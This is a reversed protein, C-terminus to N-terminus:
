RSEAAQPASGCAVPLKEPLAAVARPDTAMPQAALWASVAEIDGASLRGAIRAMCDPAAARRLGTQWAGLQSNLYDRPLGLLGPIAPQLGTLARGHCRVCAPIDRAADGREVLARGADLVRTPATAPVPPPHPLDLAAFHGAIEHLYADSLHGVLYTMPPYRRRGERFNVLQQFLYGAPKGAIRPYYGDPAARGEKGHCQTCAALRQALTDPVTAARADRLPATMAGIMALMLALLTRWRFRPSAASMPVVFFCLRRKRRRQCLTGGSFATLGPM